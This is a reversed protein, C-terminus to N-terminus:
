GHEAGGPCQAALGSSLLGRIGEFRRGSGQLEQEPLSEGRNGRQRTILSILPIGPTRRFYGARRSPRSFGMSTSLDDSDRNPTVKVM